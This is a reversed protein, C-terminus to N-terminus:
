LRAHLCPEDGGSRHQGGYHSRAIMFSQNVEAHLSNRELQRVWAMIEVAHAALSSTGESRVVELDDCVVGLTTSLIDLEDSEAQLNRRVETLDMALRTSVSKAELKQTM